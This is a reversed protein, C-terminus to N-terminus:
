FGRFRAVFGDYDLDGGSATLETGQFDASTQFAGSVVIDTETLVMGHPRQDNVGGLAVGWDLEGSEAIFRMLAFEGYGEMPNPFPTGGISFSGTSLMALVLGGHPDFALGKPRDPVAPTAGLKRLWVLGGEAAEDLVALVVDNEDGAAVRQGLIEGSGRFLLAVGLHRDGDYAIRELGVEAESLDETLLDLRWLPEFREDTRLLFPMPVDSSAEGGSEVEGEYQGSLLWEDNVREIHRLSLGESAVFARSDSFSGDSADLCVVAGETGRTSPFIETAELVVRGEVSGVLCARDGDADVAIDGAWMRLTSDLHSVWQVEGSPRLRFVLTDLSRGPTGGADYTRGALRVEGGFGIAVVATGDPLVDFYTSEAGNAVGSLRLAGEVELSEDLFLLGAGGADEVGFEPLPYAVIALVFGGTPRQRIRYAQELGGAIIESDHGYTEVALLHPAAECATEVCVDEGCSTGCGGCHERSSRPTVECGDVHAANCDLREGICSRIQCSGARCEAFDVGITMPCLATSAGEDTAGDCDEDEGDCTEDSPRVAGQCPGWLGDECVEVGRECAGEDTGDACPREDGDSCEATADPPPGADAAGGDSSGGDFDLSGDPGTLVGGDPLVCEFASVPRTGEPCQCRGDREVLEGCFDKETCGGMLLTVVLFWRTLSTM